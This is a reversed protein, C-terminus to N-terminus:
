TRQKDGNANDTTHRMNDGPSFAGGLMCCAVTRRVGGCWLLWWYQRQKTNRGAGAMTPRRARAHGHLSDATLAGM